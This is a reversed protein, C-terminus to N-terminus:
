AALEVAALYRLVAQVRRNVERSDAIGLRTFIRAVYHEVTKSSVCLRTAIGSNSLGTAMLRLIEAERQTLGLPQRRVPVVELVTVM